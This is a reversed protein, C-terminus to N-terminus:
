LTGRLLLAPELGTRPRVEYPRTTTTPDLVPLSAERKLCQVQEGVRFGLDLDAASPHTNAGSLGIGALLWPQPSEHAPCYWPKSM